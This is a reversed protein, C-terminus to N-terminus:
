SAPADTAPTDQVAVCDSAAVWDFPEAIIGVWMWDAALTVADGNLTAHIAEADGEPVLRLESEHDKPLQCDDVAQYSIQLVQGLREGEVNFELSDATRVVTVERIRPCRLRVRDPQGNPPEGDITFIAEPNARHAAIVSELLDYTARDVCGEPRGPLSDFASEAESWRQQRGHLAALCAAAGGQYLSRTEPIEIAALLEPELAERCSELTARQILQYIDVQTPGEPSGPGLGAIWAIFTDVPNADPPQTSAAPPDTPTLTQDATLTQDPAPTATAPVDVGVCGSALLVTLALTVLHRRDNIPMAHVRM